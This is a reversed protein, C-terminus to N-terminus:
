GGAETVYQHLAAIEDESLDAVAGGVEPHGSLVSSFAAEDLGAMTQVNLESEAGHCASCAEEFIAAGDADQASVPAAAVALLLFAAHIYRQTLM